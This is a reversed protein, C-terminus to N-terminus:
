ARPDTAETDSRLHERKEVVAFRHNAEVVNGVVTETAPDEHGSVVFFTNPDRRVAQYEALNLLLPATCAPDGCECIFVTEAAPEFRLHERVAVIEENAARFLTENYAIRQERESVM